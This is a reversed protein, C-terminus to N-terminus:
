TRDEPKHISEAIGLRTWLKGIEGSIAPLPMLPDTEFKRCREVLKPSETLKRAPMELTGCRPCWFAPDGGVAPVGGVGQMTHGCTPCSM